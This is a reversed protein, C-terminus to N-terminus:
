QVMDGVRVGSMMEVSQGIWVDNRIDIYYEEETYEYSKKYPIYKDSVLGLKKLSDNFVIPYTM